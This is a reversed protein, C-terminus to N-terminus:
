LMQFKVMVMIPLVKSADSPKLGTAVLLIVSNLNLEKGEKKSLTTEFNGIYGFIEKIETELFLQINQNIKVSKILPKIMQQASTMYPFTLDVKAAHGGIRKTKEILIYQKEQM